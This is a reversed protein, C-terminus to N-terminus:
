VLRDKALMWVDPYTAPSLYPITYGSVIASTEADAPDEVLETARQKGEDKSANNANATQACAPRCDEQGIFVRPLFSSTASSTSNYRIILSSSASPLRKTTKLEKSSEDYTDVTRQGMTQADRGLTGSRVLQVAYHVDHNLITKRGSRQALFNAEEMIRNMTDNLLGGVAKVGGAQVLVNVHNSKLARVM